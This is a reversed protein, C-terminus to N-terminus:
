VAFGAEETVSRRGEAQYMTGALPPVLWRPVVGRTRALIYPLLESLQGFEKSSNRPQVLPVPKKKRLRWPVVSALRQSDSTSRMAM